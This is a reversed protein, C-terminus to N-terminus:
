EETTNPRSEATGPSSTDFFNPPLPTLPVTTNAFHVVYDGNVEALNELINRYATDVIRAPEGDVTCALIENGDTYLTRLDVAPTLGPFGILKVHPTSSDDLLRHVFRRTLEVTVPYTYPAIHLIWTGATTRQLSQHFLHALKQNLFPEGQHFWRGYADLRIDDLPAGQTLFHRVGEPIEPDTAAQQRLEELANM